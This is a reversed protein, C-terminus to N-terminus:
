IRSTYPQQIIEWTGSPNLGMPINKVENAPIDYVIVEETDHEDHFGIVVFHRPLGSKNGSKARFETGFPVSSDITIQSKEMKSKFNHPPM